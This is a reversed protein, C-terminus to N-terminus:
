HYYCFNTYVYYFVKLALGVILQIQDQWPPASQVFLMFYGCVQTFGNLILDNMKSCMIDFLCLNSSTFFDFYGEM